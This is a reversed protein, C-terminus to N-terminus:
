GLAASHSRLQIGLVECFASAHVSDWWCQELIDRKTACFNEDESTIISAIGRLRGQETNQVRPKLWFDLEPEKGGEGYHPYM